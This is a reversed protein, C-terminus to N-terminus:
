PDVGGNVSIAGTLWYIRISSFRGSNGEIVIEGGSSAGDSYFEIRGLRDQRILGAGTLVAIKFPKPIIIDNSAQGNSIRRNAVDVEVSATEGKSIARLSAEAAAHSIKQSLTNLSERSKGWSLGGYAIGAALSIIALTVLMELLSFGDSSVPKNM